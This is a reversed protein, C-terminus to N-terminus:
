ESLYLADEAGSTTTTRSMTVPPIGSGGTVILLDMGNFFKLPFGNGYPGRLTMSDGKKLTHMASTLEGVRRVVLEITSSNYPDSAIGFPAEGYGWIGALMFQGPTFALLDNSHSDFPEGNARQLRFLLTDEAHQEIKTVVVPEPKYINEM